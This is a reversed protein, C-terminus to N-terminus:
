QKGAQKRFASPSAGEIARFRRAFDSSGGFGCQEAVRTVSLLTGTLLRRAEEMQRRQIAEGPTLGTARKFHTHFTKYSVRQTARLLQEVGLGGCAHQNIFAVAGAIDCLEAQQLGTSQRVRLDMANFRVTLQPQPEDTMMQALIRAAEFGIKEGVPIVSTLTPDSALSVDADDSGIVAVDEPVRLGLAHCVRIAYGGGGTEPCLVGTPKPLSRFWTEMAESVPTVPQEQDDLLAPDVVESFVARMESVPRVIDLFTQEWPPDHSELMLMALSRLGQQRFHDAAMKVEAAFSGSVVAMGVRPRAHCMSVVPCPRALLALLKELEEVELFTLLGDPQWALLESVPDRGEAHARMERPVHFDKILFGASTEAYSLAGRVL